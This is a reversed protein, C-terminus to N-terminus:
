IGAFGQRAAFRHDRHASERQWRPRNAFHDAGRDVDDDLGRTQAVAGPADGVDGLHHAHFAVGDNGLVQEEVVQEALVGVSVDDAPMARGADAPRPEPIASSIVAFFFPPGCCEVGGFVPTLDLPARWSFAIVRVPTEPRWWWRRRRM